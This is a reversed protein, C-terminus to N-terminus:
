TCGQRAGRRVRHGAAGDPGIIRFRSSAPRPTPATRSRTATRPSTCAAPCATGRRRDARGATPRRRRGTTTGARPPRRRSPVSWGASGSAPASSRRWASRRLRRAEAAHEHSRTRIVRRGTRLRGRRRRRPRGADDLPEDSTVTVAGTALDVQVDRSARRRASRRASPAARLARLDHGQGRVDHHDDSEDGKWTGSVPYGAHPYGGTRRDYWVGPPVSDQIPMVVGGGRDAAVGGALVLQERRSRRM